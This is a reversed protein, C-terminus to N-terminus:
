LVLFVSVPFPIHPIYPVGPINVLIGPFIRMKANQPTNSFIGSFIGSFETYHELLNRPFTDYIRPFEILSEPSNKFLNWPNNPFIGLFTWSSELYHKWNQTLWLWTKSLFCLNNESAHGIKAIELSVTSLEFLIIKYKWKKQFEFQFYIVVVMPFLLSLFILFWLLYFSFILWLFWLLIRANSKFCNWPILPFLKIVTIWWPRYLLFQFM